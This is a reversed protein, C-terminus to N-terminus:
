QDAPRQRRTLLLFGGVVVAAALPYLVLAPAEPADRCPQGNNDKCPNNSAAAFSPVLMTLLGAALATLLVRRM